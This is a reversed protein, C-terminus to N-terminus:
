IFIEPTGLEYNKWAELTKIKSAMRSGILALTYLNSNWEEPDDATADSLAQSYEDSLENLKNIFDQPVSVKELKM